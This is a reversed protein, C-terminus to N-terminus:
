KVSSKNQPSNMVGFVVHRHTGLCLRGVSYPVSSASPVQTQKKPLCGLAPQKLPPLSPIGKQFCQMRISTEQHGHDKQLWRFFSLPQLLLIALLALGAQAGHHIELRGLCYSRTEPFLFTGMLLIFHKLDWNSVRGPHTCPIM